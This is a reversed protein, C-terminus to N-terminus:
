EKVSSGHVGDFFLAVITAATGEVASADLTRYAGARHMASAKLMSDFMAALNVADPIRRKARRIEEDLPSALIRWTQEARERIREMNKQYGGADQRILELMVLRFLRSHQSIYSLLSLAYQMYKVRAGGPRAVAARAMAEIEDMLTLLIGDFLEEKSSFYNYITGKGFEAERAIEELTTEHYGSRAFVERAAQLIAQRRANRERERRTRVGRHAIGTKMAHYGISTVSLDYQSQDTM